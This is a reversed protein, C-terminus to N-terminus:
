SSLALGASGSICVTAEANPFQHSVNDWLSIIATQIDSYHRVYEQYVIELENMVIIKATTSGIDMGIHLLM